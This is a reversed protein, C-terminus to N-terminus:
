DRPILSNLEDARRATEDLMCSAASVKALSGGEPDYYFRCNSQIYKKWIAQTMLLQKKQEPSQKTMLQSYSSNLLVVQKREEQRMCALMKETVGESMEMCVGYQKSYLGENVGATVGANANASLALFSVLLPVLFSGFFPGFFPGSALHAYRM